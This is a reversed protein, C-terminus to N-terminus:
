EIVGNARLLLPQPITLRIAKATKMNIVFDFKTPQAIALEAPKAGRLIRDVYTALIRQKASGNPGYSILGRAEAVPREEAIAPLSHQVTLRGILERKAYFMPDGRVILADARRAAIQAIAKEIDGPGAVEVFLPQIRLARFAQEYDSRVRQWYTNAPDVLEGVLTAKPLLERILEM